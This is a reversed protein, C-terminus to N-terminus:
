GLNILPTYEPQPQVPITINTEEKLQESTNTEPQTVLADEQITEIQQLEEESPLSDTFATYCDTVGPISKELDENIVFPAEAIKTQREYEEWPTFYKYNRGWVDTANASRVWLLASTIILKIDKDEFAKYILSSAEGLCASTYSPADSNATLNISSCHPHILTRRDNPNAYYSKLSKLALLLRGKTVKIIYPGGVVADNSQVVKIKSPGKTAFVISNIIKDALFRKTFSTTTIDINSESNFFTINGNVDSVEISHLEILNFINTFYPDIEPDLSEVLKAEEEKIQHMKEKLKSSLKFNLSYDDFVSAAKNKIELLEQKKETIKRQLNDVMSQYRELDNLACNYDRRFFRFTHLNDNFDKELYTRVQKQKAVFKNKKATFDQPLTFDKFLSAPKSIYTYKKYKSLNSLTNTRTANNYQIETLGGYSEFKKSCYYAYLDQNYFYSGGAVFANELFKKLYLSAKKYKNVKVYDINYMFTFLYADKVPTSSRVHMFSFPVLVPIFGGSHKMIKNRSVTKLSFEFTSGSCTGKTDLIKINNFSPIELNNNILLTCLAAHINTKYSILHHTGSTGYDFDITKLDKLYKKSLFNNAIRVNQALNFVDKDFVIFDDFIEYFAKPLFSYIKKGSSHEGLYNTVFPSLINVGDLNVITSSPAVNDQFASTFAPKDSINKFYTCLQEFSSQIFESASPWNFIRQMRKVEPAMNGRKGYNHYPYLDSDDPSYISLNM